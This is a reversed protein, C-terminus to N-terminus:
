VDGLEGLKSHVFTSPKNVHGIIRLSLELGLWKLIPYIEADSYIFIFERLLREWTNM